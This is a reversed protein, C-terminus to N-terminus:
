DFIDRFLFPDGETRKFIVWNLDKPSKEDEDKYLTVTGKILSCGEDDEERRVQTIEAEFNKSDEIVKAEFALNKAGEFSQIIAVILVLIYPAEKLAKFHTWEFLGEHYAQCSRGEKELANFEDQVDHSETTGGSRFVNSESM